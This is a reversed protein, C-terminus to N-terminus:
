SFLLMASLAPIAVKKGFLRKKMRKKMKKGGIKV